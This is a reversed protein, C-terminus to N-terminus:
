PSQYALLVTIVEDCSKMALTKLAQSLYGRKGAARTDGNVILAHAGLYGAPNVIPRKAAYSNSTLFGRTQPAPDHFRSQGM